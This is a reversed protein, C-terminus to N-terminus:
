SVILGFGFIWMRKYFFFYFFTHKLSLQFRQIGPTGIQHECLNKPLRFLISKPIKRPPPSAYYSSQFMPLLRAFNISLFKRCKMIALPPSHPTSVRPLLDNVIEKGNLSDGWHRLSTREGTKCTPYTRPPLMIFLISNRCIQPFLWYFVLM